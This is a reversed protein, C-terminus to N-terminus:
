EKAIQPSSKLFELFKEVLQPDWFGQATEEKLTSITEELAMARKYPRETAM